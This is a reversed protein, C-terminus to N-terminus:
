FCDYIVIAKYIMKEHKDHQVLVIQGKEYSNNGDKRLLPSLFAIMLHTFGGNNDWGSGCV